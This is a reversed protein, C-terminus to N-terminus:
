FITSDMVLIPTRFVPRIALALYNSIPNRFAKFESRSRLPRGFMRTKEYELSTVWQGKTSGTLDIITNTLFPRIGDAYDIRQFLGGGFFGIDSSYGFVPYFSYNLGKSQNEVPGQAYSRLPTLFCVIVAALFIFRGM